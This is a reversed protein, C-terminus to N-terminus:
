ALAWIEGLSEVASRCHRSKNDCLGAGATLTDAIHSEISDKSDLVASIGGQAYFTSGENLKTKSFVAIRHQHAIQIALSLGSAGSGIILVDFSLDPHPLTQTNM